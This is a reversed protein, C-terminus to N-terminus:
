LPSVWVGWSCSRSQSSIWEVSVDRSTEDKTQTLFATKIDRGIRQSADTVSFFNFPLANNTFRNPWIKYTIPVQEDSSYSSFNLASCIIVENGRLDGTVAIAGKPCAFKVVATSLFARARLQWILAVLSPVQLTTGTQPRSPSFTTHRAQLILYMVPMCWIINGGESSSSSEDQDLFQSQWRCDRSPVMCKSDSAFRKEGFKM